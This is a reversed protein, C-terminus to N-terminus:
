PHVLCLSFYSDKGEGLATLDVYRAARTWNSNVLLFRREEGAANRYVEYGYFTVTHDRYQNHTFSILGPRAAEIEAVLVAWIEDASRFFYRSKAKGRYGYMRWIERALPAMDWPFTGMSPFHRHAGIARARIEQFRCLPEATIGAFGQAYYYGFISTLSTITCHNTGSFDDMRLLPVQGIVQYSSRHWVGGFREALYAKPDIIEPYRKLM